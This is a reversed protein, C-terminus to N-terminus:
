HTELQVSSSALEIRASSVFLAIGPVSAEAALKESLYILLIRFMSYFETLSASYFLKVPKCHMKQCMSTIFYEM